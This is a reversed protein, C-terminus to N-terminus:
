KSTAPLLGLANRTSWFAVDVIGGFDQSIGDPTTMRCPIARQEETLGPKTAIGVAWLCLCRADCFYITGAHDELTYHEPPVCRRDHTCIKLAM